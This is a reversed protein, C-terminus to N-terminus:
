LGLIRSILPKIRDAASKHCVLTGADSHVIICDTLGVVAIPHGPEGIVLTGTVEDLFANGSVQNGREDPPILQDTALWGGIDNWEFAAPVCWVDRAKEMVGFDISIPKIRRFSEMARESFAEEGAADTLGALAGYTDPLHREAAQLLERAQWVFIGSNWLFQGSALYQEAKQRDPKEVFEEVRQAALPEASAALRLYGYGTAAYTPRIGITGLGGQRARAVATALTRHFEAADGIFHDSPFVAMVADPQRDAVILSALIVAAATDRRLPEPIVNEPPVDPTEQRVLDLFAAGTMVLIRDAPVLLRARDFAQMYLSRGALETLFQKPRQPTSLPWFRTGIGGAMVVAVVDELGNGAPEPNGDAAAESQKPSSPPSEDQLMM